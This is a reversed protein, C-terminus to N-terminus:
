SAEWGAKSPFQEHWFSIYDLTRTAIRFLTFGRRRLRAFENALFNLVYSFAFVACAGHLL